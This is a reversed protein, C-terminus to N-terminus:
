NAGQIAASTCPRHRFRWTQGQAFAPQGVPQAAATEVARVIRGAPFTHQLGGACSPMCIPVLDYRLQVWRATANM